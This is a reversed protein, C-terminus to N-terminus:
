QPQEPFAAHPGRFTKERRFVVCLYEHSDSPPFAKPREGSGPDGPCWVLHDGDLAYICRTTLGKYKDPGEVVTMDLAKPKKTPDLDFTGVYVDGNNFRATFRDGNIFLQVKRRGTLFNWVGQLRERDKAAAAERVDIDQLLASM